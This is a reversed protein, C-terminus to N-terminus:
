NFGSSVDFIAGTIVQDNGCGDDASSLQYKKVKGKKPCCVGAKGDM